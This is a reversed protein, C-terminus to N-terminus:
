AAMALPMRDRGEGPGDPNARWTSGDPYVVVVPRKTHELLTKLSYGRLREFLGPNVLSVPILILDADEREAWEALHRFGHATPLIAQAGAGRARIMEMQKAVVSRGLRRLEPEGLARIWQRRNKEPYPSVLYSAASIEFLVVEGGDAAALGSACARVAAYEPSDDLSTVALVRRVVGEAEPDCSRAVRARVSELHAIIAHVVRVDNTVFGRFQKGPASIGGVGFMKEPSTEWGVFAIPTPHSSVLFWQNELSRTDRPLPTWVGELGEPAEELPCQGFGLVRVGVRALLRYQEAEGILGDATQFGVYLDAGQPSDRIEREIERSFDLMEAADSLFRFGEIPTGGARLEKEMREILGEVGSFDRLLIDSETITWKM